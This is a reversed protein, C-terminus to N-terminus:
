NAFTVDDFRRSGRLVDRGDAKWAGNTTIAFSISSDKSADALKYFITGNVRHQGRASINKILANGDVYAQFDAIIVTGGPRVQIDYDIKVSAEDKEFKIRYKPADAIGAPKSCGWLSMLICATVILGALVRM